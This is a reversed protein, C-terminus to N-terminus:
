RMNKGATVLNPLRPLAPRPRRGLCFLFPRSLAEALGALGMLLREGKLFLLGGSLPALALCPGPRGLVALFRWRLLCVFLCVVRRVEHRALTLRFSCFWFSSYYTVKPLGQLCPTSQLLNFFFSFYFWVTATLIISVVSFGHQRKWIALSEPGSTAWIQGLDQRDVGCNAATQVRTVLGKWCLYPTQPFVVQQQQEQVSSNTQRRICGLPPM